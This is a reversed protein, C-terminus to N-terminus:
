LGFAQVSVLAHDASVGGLGSCYLLSSLRCSVKGFLTDAEEEEGDEYFLAIGWPVEGSISSGQAIEEETAIGDIYYGLLPPDCCFELYSKCWEVVKRMWEPEEADIGNPFNGIEFWWM